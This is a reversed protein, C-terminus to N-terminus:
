RGFVEDVLAALTARENREAARRVRAAVGPEFRRPALSEIAVKADAPHGDAIVALMAALARDSRHLGIGRLLPDREDSRTCRELAGLLRTLAEDSRSQGLAVAALERKEAEEGDLV